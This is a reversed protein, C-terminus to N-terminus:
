ENFNKFFVAISQQILIVHGSCPRVPGFDGILVGFVPGFIAVSALPLCATLYLGQRIDFLHYQQGVTWHRGLLNHTNLIWLAVSGFVYGYL